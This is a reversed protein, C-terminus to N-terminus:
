KIEDVGKLRHIARRMVRGEPLHVQNRVKNYNACIKKDIGNHITIKELLSDCFRKKTNQRIQITPKEVSQRAKAASSFKLM